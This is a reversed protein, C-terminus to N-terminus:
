CQVEGLVELCQKLTSSDFHKELHIHIGQHELTIGTRNLETHKNRDLLESFASRDLDSKPFLKRQWYYFATIVVNKQRCWSAASLGSKRQELIKDKWQQRKEESFPQAM